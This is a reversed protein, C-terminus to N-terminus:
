DRNLVVNLPIVQATFAATRYAALPKLARFARELTTVDTYAGEIGWPSWLIAISNTPIVLVTNEGYQDGPLVDMSSPIRSM